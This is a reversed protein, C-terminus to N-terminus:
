KWNDGLIKRVDNWVYVINGQKTRRYNRGLKDKM